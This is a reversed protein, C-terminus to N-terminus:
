THAAQRRQELAVGALSVAARAALFVAVVPTLVIWPSGQNRHRFFRLASKHHNIIKRYPASKTSGGVKHMITAAPDFVVRWGARNLRLCFDTEEFYMFYGADFGGVAEFAERRIMMCSGSVWDVDQVRSRDLDDMLYLRTAPNSPWIRGLLAHAVGVGLSPFRRGTPYAAGDPQVINPGVTGIRPDAKLRDVLQEISKEEPVTDPNLQFLWRGSARAAGQNIAASLGPNDSNAIVTAGFSRAIEVSNDRSSNDVVITEFDYGGAAAKLSSLCEPLDDASQYTVLVISVLDDTSTKPGSEPMRKRMGRRIASRWRYGRRFSRTPSTPLLSYGFALGIAPPTVAQSGAVRQASM